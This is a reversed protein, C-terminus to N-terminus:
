LKDIKDKTEKSIKMTFKGTKRWEDYNFFFEKANLLIKGLESATPICSGTFKRKM